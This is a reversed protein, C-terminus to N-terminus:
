ESLAALLPLLQSPQNQQTLSQELVLLLALVFFPLSLLMLLDSLLLQQKVRLM